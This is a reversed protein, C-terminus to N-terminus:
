CMLIPRALMPAVVAAMNWPRDDGGSCLCGEFKQLLEVLNCKCLPSGQIVVLGGVDVWRELEDGYEISSLETGAHLSQMGPVCALTEYFMFAWVVLASVAIAMHSIPDPLKDTSADSNQHLSLITAAHWLARRVHSGSRWNRVRAEQETVLDAPWRGSDPDAHVSALLNLSRIDAYLHISLLHYLITTDFILSSIRSTIAVHYNSEFPTEAGLYARLPYPLPEDSSQAGFVEKTQSSLLASTKDLQSKWANLSDRLPGHQVETCGKHFLEAYRWLSRQMGCLGLNVDEILLPSTMWNQANRIMKSANHEDRDVPDLPQRKFFVYIGHANWTAFTTPLKCCFEERQLLPPQQRLLSLYSDIKFLILALRKRGERKIFLFPFYSGPEHKYDHSAVSEANFVGLERLVAVLMGRLLIVRSILHEQGSCLGFIINMVCAQYLHMPWAKKHDDNPSMQLKLFLHNVLRDHITLALERSEESGEIWSGIMAVSATIVFPYHQEDFTPAHLIPWRPHFHTFYLQTCSNSVPQITDLARWQQRASETAQHGEPATAEIKMDKSRLNELELVEDLDAFIKNSETGTQAKALAHVLVSIRRRTPSSLTNESMKIDRPPSIMALSLFDTKKNVETSRNSAEDSSNYSFPTINIEPTQTGDTLGEAIQVKIERTFSCDIGRKTCLSCRSGGDCKTKNAFCADCARGRRADPPAITSHRGV